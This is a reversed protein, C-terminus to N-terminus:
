YKIRGIAILAGTIGLLLGAAPLLLSIDAPFVLSKFIPFSMTIQLVVLYYLSLIGILGLLGSSLGIVAGEIIFPTRIFGKTAGLLKYTCIERRKRYFLIKVTSYCVFVMGACLLAVFAIVASQMGARLSAISSLFKEGYEVEAVGRVNRLRQTLGQV